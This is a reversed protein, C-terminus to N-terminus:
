VFFVRASVVLLLLLRLFVEARLKDCEARLGLREFLKKLPRNLFEEWITLSVKLM